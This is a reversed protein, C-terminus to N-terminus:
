MEKLIGLMTEKFKGYKEKNEFEEGLKRILEEADPATFHKKPKKMEALVDDIIMSAIPGIYKTLNFELRDFFGSDLAGPVPGGSDDREPMKGELSEIVVGLSINLVPLSIDKEALVCVLGGTFGKAFFNHGVFEWDLTAAKKDLSRVGRISLFATSAATSVMKQSYKSPMARSLVKGENNVVFAGIVRPVKLLDLM